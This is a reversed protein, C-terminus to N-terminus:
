IVSTSRLKIRCFMNLARVQNFKLLSRYWPTDDDDCTGVGGAKYLAQQMLVADHQMEAIDKESNFDVLRPIKHLVADSMQRIPYV